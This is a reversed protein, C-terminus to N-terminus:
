AASFCFSPVCFLLDVMEMDHDKTILEGGSVGNPRRVSKTNVREPYRVKQYTGAWDFDIMHISLTKPDVLVNIERIDGHVINNNHLIHVADKIKSKVLKKQDNSFGAIDSLRLYQSFDMVVMFWNGPLLLVRRLRPAHELNALIRHAEESYRRTFKICLKEEPSRATVAVFVLKEDFRSQYTFDIDHGTEDKYSTPYPFTRVTATAPSRPFSEYYKEIRQITRKFADLSSAIANRSTEDTWHVTLDHMPTLPEVHINKGTWLCGYFGIFPGLDIMLVCPFRSEYVLANNLFQAYYGVAEFLASGSGLDNKCERIAPPMIVVKWNGDTKLETNSITEPAMYIGSKNLADFIASRRSTENDYWACATTTLRQLLEQAWATSPAACDDKFQGFQPQLLEIPITHYDFPRNIYVVDQAVDKFTSPSSLSSPARKLIKKLRSSEDDGSPSRPRKRFTSNPRIKVVLHVQGKGLDQGFVDSVEEDDDIPAKETISAMARDLLEGEGRKKLDDPKRYLELESIDNDHLIKHKKYIRDRLHVIVDVDKLDMVDPGLHSNARSPDFVFYTLYKLFKSM